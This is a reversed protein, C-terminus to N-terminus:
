YLFGILWLPLKNGFPYDMDDALIFSNPIDAIQKYDKDSGGVEFTYKGDIRFDGKSKGYEVLHAQSLQNAAFTERVTGINVPQSALAYLMNSNDMLIKDPKQMKKANWYDSYLLRIIDAKDLDNLYELITNRQLASQISLRKIDVDYPVSVALINVLAKIKRTNSVDVKCIRPLEDDIIYSVTNEITSHYDVTDKLQLYYPYYGCQLYEQFYQLPRCKEHVQETLTWPNSLLEDLTYKPFELGKYFYLFERFSLGQIDHNVCRRSLDADGQQLSLLSSGSIVIRMDTNYLDYIEKIERSWNPYKHIEDLFLHKGGMRYFQEVLDMLSHSAFYAGDCSCYLVSRDSATYHQKIYQRMMTSKGVGKPGRIAMLPTDWNIEKSCQRIISMPTKKYYSVHKDILNKMTQTNQM